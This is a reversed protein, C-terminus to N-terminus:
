SEPMRAQAENVVRELDGVREIDGLMEVALPPLDLTDELVVLLEVIGLSDFGLEAILSAEPRVETVGSPSMEGVIEAVVTCTDTAM